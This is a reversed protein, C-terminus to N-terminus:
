VLILDSQSFQMEWLACHSSTRMDALFSSKLFVWMHELFRGLFSNRCSLSTNFTQAFNIYRSTNASARRKDVKFLKVSARVCASFFYCGQSKCLSPTIARTRALVELWSVLGAPRVQWTKKRRRGEDEESRGCARLWLAASPSDCDILYIGGRIKGYVLQHNGELTYTHAHSHISQTHPRRCGEFPTQVNAFGCGGDAEHRRRGQCRRRLEKPIQCQFHTNRVADGRHTAWRRSQRKSVSRRSELYDFSVEHGGANEGVRTQWTKNAQLTEQCRDRM